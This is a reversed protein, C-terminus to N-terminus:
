FLAEEFSAYIRPAFPICPPLPTVLRSTRPIM